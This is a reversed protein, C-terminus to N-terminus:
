FRTGFNIQFIDTNDYDEKLIPFGADVGVPGLPSKWTMGFGTSMRLSGSDRVNSNSPSLQGASGFDTFVRGNVGLEKPLGLPFGLQLKTSYIWEGGLADGSIRDRPGFGSAQFGRVDNNGAFYRDLFQVDEGLGVIYGLKGAVSFKLDDSIPYYYGAKATNRLHYISGGIGALDTELTAKYGDSPEIKSDRTDYTIAHTIQSTYRTKEQNQILSAADSAVDTIEAKKILYAWRQSVDDLVPYQTRLQMGTRQMNVSSLDQLDQRVHFLDLGASVDRNLFHPETFSLDIQSREAAIMTSIKVNQGRGLFNRETLSVEGMPGLTSSYGAGLSISGTSKEEVDVTVVAKDPASGSIKDVSVKEFFDLRRLRRKSRRLKAANFADGEVLQFERRIVKDMTRVNGSIDIREIFVRPGEKIQFKINLEQKKQNRTIRPRVDIFAYGLEGIETTLKDITKDISRIDYWDGPQIHIKEKIDSAKLDRLKADIEITGIKYRKGENIGFTIFFDKQDSTLEALASTVRFDAYGDSLYHRRLLERDLTLRDPDYTDNSSLIRYWATEKTQVVSRLARDSYEKNGVFRVSQIGTSSGEEIEFALNIRNQPLQIVKPEISVTFRGERRYLTLIRKLDDQVKTRTYIVRPRLSIETQLIEDDLVRNGEFAIRNIVPNEVVNVILGTGDRDISVDAFLGTAFLSKLSRDVRLPDYVDGERVLLYSKVTGPEIRQAGKIVIREVLSAQAVEITSALAIPYLANM